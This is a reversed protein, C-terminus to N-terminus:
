NGQDNETLEEVKSPKWGEGDVWDIYVRYAKKDEKSSVTAISSNPDHNNNGIRWVTMNGRDIGTAYSIANLMEQWDVSNSDYDAAHEGTQSTGVPKWEPNEITQKVNDTSGGETVVPAASDDPQESATEESDTSQNDESTQTQSDSAETSNDSTSQKDKKSHQTHKAEKNNDSKSASNDNGGAFVTFAVIIILLLVIAILSNLLINTKKRKARYGSRSSNKFDNNM